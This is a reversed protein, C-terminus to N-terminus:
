RRKSCLSHVLLWGGFVLFDIDIIVLEDTVRLSFRQKGVVYRFPHKPCVCVHSVSSGSVM